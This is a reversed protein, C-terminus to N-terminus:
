DIVIEKEHSYTVYGLNAKPPKKLYKALTYIVGIKSSKAGASHEKAIEACKLILEDTKNQSRLLVHAGACDKTHFWMDDDKALKSVIYDNQKNNKGIFITYENTKIEKITSKKSSINKNTEPEIEFSIEYLDYINEAENISYLLQKLYQIESNLDDMLKEIKQNAIKSKNYLKYYQNANDKLTKNENLPIIVNKNNEYDYVNITKVFDKNNYLNAM